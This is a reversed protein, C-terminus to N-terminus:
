RMEGTKAGIVDWVGFWGSTAIKQFTSEEFWFDATISEPKIIGKRDSNATTGMKRVAFIIYPSFIAM